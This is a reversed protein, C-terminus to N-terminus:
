YCIFVDLIKSTFITNGGNSGSASYVKNILNTNELTSKINNM